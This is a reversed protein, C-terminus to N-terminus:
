SIKKKGRRASKKSSKAAAKKGKRGAKAATRKSTKKAQKTRPRSVGKSKKAAKVSKRAIPRSPRSEEARAAGGIEVTVPGINDAMNSVTERAAEAVGAAQGVVSGAIQTARNFVEGIMELPASMLTSQAQPEDKPSPRPRRSKGTSSRIKTVQKLLHSKIKERIVQASNEKGFQDQFEDCFQGYKGSFQICWGSGKSSRCVDKVECDLELNNVAEAAANNIAQEDM